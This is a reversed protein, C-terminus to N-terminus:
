FLIEEEKRSSQSVLISKAMKTSEEEREGKNYKIAVKFKVM